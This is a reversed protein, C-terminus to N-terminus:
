AVLATLAAALKENRSDTIRKLDFEDGNLYFPYDPFIDLRSEALRRDLSQTAQRMADTAEEVTLPDSVAWM